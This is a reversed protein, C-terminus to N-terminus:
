GVRPRAAVATTRDALRVRWEEVLADTESDDPHFGPRLYTLLQRAAWPSLLRQRRRNARHKLLAARTLHRRDAVVARGWSIVVYGGLMGVALGLGAVRIVYNGSVAEFVDFAVNKHELEELAHWLVLTEFSPETLLVERTPEHGLFAEAFIGTLHESGATIALPLTRPRLRTLVALVRGIGADIAVTPYGIAALTANVDRHERGHMAEQGIFANVQSKLVANDGIAGRHTRVSTVFFEEGRPFVSSLAAMLHSFIPDGEVIWRGVEATTLDLNLRRVPISRSSSPRSRTATVAATTM